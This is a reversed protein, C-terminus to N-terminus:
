DLLYNHSSIFEDDLPLISNTDHNM